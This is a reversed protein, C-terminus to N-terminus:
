KTFYKDNEICFDIAKQVHESAELNLTGPMGGPLIIMEVNDDLNIDNESIDSVVSIGHSGRIVEGGVGVTIIDLECRRLMDVPILAEAEEFGNALFLYIM